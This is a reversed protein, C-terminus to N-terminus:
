ITVQSGNSEAPLKKQENSSGWSMHHLLCFLAKLLVDLIIRNIYFSNGLPYAVHNYIYM